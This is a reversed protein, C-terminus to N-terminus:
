IDVKSAVLALKMEAFERQSPWPFEDMGSGWCKICVDNTMACGGMGGRWTATSSYLYYGTGKCKTCPIRDYQGRLELPNPEDM